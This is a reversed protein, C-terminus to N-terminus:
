IVPDVSISAGTGSNNLPSFLEIVAGCADLNLAFNLNVILGDTITENDSDWVIVTGDKDKKTITWKGVPPDNDPNLNFTIDFEGESRCCVGFETIYGDGENIIAPFPNPSGFGSPPLYSTPETYGNAPDPKLPGFELGYVNGIPHPRDM